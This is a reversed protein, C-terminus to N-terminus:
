KKLQVHTEFCCLQNPDDVNWLKWRFWYKGNPLKKGIYLSYSLTNPTGAVVPCTAYLCGDAIGVTNFPTESADDAWYVATNLKSTAFNPTFDFSLSANRGKKLPCPSKGCPTIRLETVTCSDQSEKECRRFVTVEAITIAIITLFVAVLKCSM